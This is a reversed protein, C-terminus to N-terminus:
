SVMIIEIRYAFRATVRQFVSIGMPIPFNFVSVRSFVGTTVNKTECNSKERIKEEKASKCSSDVVVVVIRFSSVQDKAIAYM